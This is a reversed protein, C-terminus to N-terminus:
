DFFNYQPINITGKWTLVYENSYEYRVDDTNNLTVGQAHISSLFHKDHSGWDLM